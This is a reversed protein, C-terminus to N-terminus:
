KAPEVPKVVPTATEPVVIPAAVPKQAPAVEVSGDGPLLRRNGYSPRRERAPYMAELTQRLEHRRAVLPALKPDESLKADLLAPGQRELDNVVLIAARLKESLAKLDPDSMRLREEKPRLEKNITAFEASLAQAKAQDPKGGSANTSVVMPAPPVPAVVPVAGAAPAPEAPGSVAQALALGGATALITTLVICKM